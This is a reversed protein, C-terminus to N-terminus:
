QRQPFNGGREGFFKIADCRATVAEMSGPAGSFDNGPIEGGFLQDNIKLFIRFVFNGQFESGSNQLEDTVVMEQGLPIFIRFGQDVQGHIVRHFQHANGQLAVTIGKSRLLQFSRQFAGYNRRVLPFVPPVLHAGHETGIDLEHHGGALAFADRKARIDKGARLRSQFIVILGGVQFGLHAHQVADFHFRDHCLRIGDIGQNTGHISIHAVAAAQSELLHQLQGHEPIVQNGGKFIRLRGLFSIGKTGDHFGIDAIHAAERFHEIGHRGHPLLAHIGRQGGDKPLIPRLLRQLKKICAAGAGHPFDGFEQYFFPLVLHQDLMQLMFQQALGKRRLGEDPYAALPMVSGLRKKAERHANRHKGQNFLVVHVAAGVAHQAQLVQEHLILADDLFHDLPLIHRFDALKGLHQVVGGSEGFLVAARQHGADDAYEWVQVGNHQVGQHVVGVFRFRNENGPFAQLGALLLQFFQYVHFNRFVQMVLLNGTRLPIEAFVAAVLVGLFHFLHEVAAPRFQFM